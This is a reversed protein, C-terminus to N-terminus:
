IRLPPAPPQGSGGRSLLRSAAASPGADGTAGVAAESPPPLAHTGQDPRSTLLPAQFACTGGDQTGRMAVHPDSAEADTSRPHHDEAHGALAPIPVDCHAVLQVPLLTVLVLAVVSSPVTSRRRM